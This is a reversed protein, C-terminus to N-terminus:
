TNEAIVYLLGAAYTVVVLPHYSLAILKLNFSQRKAEDRALEYQEARLRLREERQDQRNM